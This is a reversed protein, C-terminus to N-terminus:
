FRSAGPKPFITVNEYDADEYTADTRYSIMGKDTVIFLEGTNQDLELDLINDSILPSNDVTHQEIIELGDASLLIIGANSTGFWKRNAGDVEIDTISTSGLVHEVNGEFELKIRQANYDGYSAGFAADSNYLVAFGNDTGIWIENDFDVAIANVQNSPLAGTNEGSNLLVNSIM